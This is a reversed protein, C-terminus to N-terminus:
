KCYTMLAINSDKLENVFTEMAKYGPNGLHYASTCVIVIEVGLEKVIPVSFKANQVTSYSKDELILKEKDFGINVLYEYMASAESKNVNENAPGGSLIYYDPHFEEEIELALKLRQEQIESITGDDNLRNGLIIVASKKNM